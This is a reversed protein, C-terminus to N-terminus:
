NSGADAESSDSRDEAPEHAPHDHTQRGFPMGEDAGFPPLKGQCEERLPVLPQVHSADYDKRLPHGEFEEYLLIRRLDGHGVFEIGLLDYAEREFWNAGSWVPVLSDIRAGTGDANGVRAKLRIRHMKEVSRLHLVVEFRPTQRGLYDVATLDIFMDMDCRPDDRLFKAIARWRAPDVVATDDGFQSHTELIADGFEKGLAELVKQSM